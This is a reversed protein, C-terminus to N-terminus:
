IIFAIEKSDYKCLQDDVIVHLLGQEDVGQIIGVKELGDVLFKAPVDKRFLQDNYKNILATTDMLLHSEYISLINMLLDFCLNKIDVKNMESSELQLSTTKWAISEPFSIQNVNIGIGVISTHINAGTLRNEILVGCLKKNGVYIDNPWKVCADLGYQKLTTQIGLCVMMNLSFSKASPFNTPFLLFSFTLNEDKSSLWIGDRQGRGHTQNSAMIATAEALPKINSLLEKLYDNTSSVEDLVILNQRLYLRSFTNNQM